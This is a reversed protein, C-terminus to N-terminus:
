KLDAEYKEICDNLEDRLEDSIHACRLSSKIRTANINAGNVYLAVALDINNRNFGREFVKKFKTNLMAIGCYGELLTIFKVMSPYNDEAAYLIEGASLLQVIRRIRDKNKPDTIYATRLLEPGNIRVYDDFYSDAYIGIAEWVTPSDVIDNILERGANDAIFSRIKAIDLGAQQLITLMKRVDITYDDDAHEKLYPGCLSFAKDASVGKQLAERLTKLDAISLFANEALTDPSIGLKMLEDWNERAEESTMEEVALDIDICYSKYQAFDQFHKLRSIPALMEALIAPNVSDLKLFEVCNAEAERATEEVSVSDRPDFNDSLEAFKVAYDIPECEFGEGHCECFAKVEEKSMSDVDVHHGTDAEEIAAIEVAEEYEFCDTM